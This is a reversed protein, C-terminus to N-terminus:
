ARFTSIWGENSVAINVTSYKKKQLMINAEVDVKLGLDGIEIDINKILLFNQPKLERHATALRHLHCVGKAIQRGLWRVKM